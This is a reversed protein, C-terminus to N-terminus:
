PGYGQLGGNNKIKFKKQIASYKEKYKQLTPQAHNCQSTCFVFSVSAPANMGLTYGKHVLIIISKKLAPAQKNCFCFLTSNSFSFCM